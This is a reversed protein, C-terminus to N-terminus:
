KVLAQAAISTIQLLPSPLLFFGLTVVASIVTALVVLPSTHIKIAHAPEDFYMVKVIKIYYYAGIVSAVVAVVALWFLGANIAALLVVM